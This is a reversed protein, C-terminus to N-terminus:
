EAKESDNQSDASQGSGSVPLVTLQGSKLYSNNTLGFFVDTSTVTINCGNKGKKHTKQSQAKELLETLYWKLAVTTLTGASETRFALNNFVTSLSMVAPKDLFVM